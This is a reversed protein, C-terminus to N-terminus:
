KDTFSVVGAREYLIDFCGVSKETRRSIPIYAKGLRAIEVIKSVAVFLIQM